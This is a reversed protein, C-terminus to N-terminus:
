MQDALSNTGGFVDQEIIQRLREPEEFMPSHASRQFTYFGKVPAKLAEFYAKTELLTVTYDHIGHLFYVPIAVSTLTTTLDTALMKNWLLGDLFVKGRWINMKEAFTYDPCLLSPLFVGAIVSRMQRTTGVGLSHMAKDRITMYSAPLPVSMTPPASELRRVMGVDGIEQFRKLMYQYAMNESKLQYAIQAVAIYAYYSQPSRAVAQLAFFTGGSHAMLYIKQKHFRDRLYDTVVLLDSVMQEITITQPSISASYSLGAGRREWWCVTFHEELIELATPYKQALFYKPMGTGGHVFLLVPKTADRGRIFMGQEVGNIDVRIKESISGVIPRGCEDVIPSPRGPSIVLLVVILVFLVGLPILLVTLVLRGKRGFRAV